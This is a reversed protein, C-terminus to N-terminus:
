LLSCIFDEERVIQLKSDSSSNIRMEFAQALKGGTILSTWGKERDEGLILYDLNRTVSKSKPLLGGRAIIQKEAESRSGWAMKGTFLFTRGPFDISPTEEILSHAILLSPIKETSILALVQRKKEAEEEFQRRALRLKEQESDFDLGEVFCKCRLLPTQKAFSEISEITCLGLSQLKPFVTGVLLDVVSEVDGLATHPRCCKLGYHERLYDLKHSPLENFVRRSLGWTCMGKSGIQDIGLRDVEPKLARDWDFTLYHSAIRSGAVFAAFESYAKIPPLGNATIFQTTYGHVATAEEPITVGHDIFVRFPVGVPSTGNFRQAAIEVIHIPSYFGDTETDILTWTNMESIIQINRCDFEFDIKVTMLATNQAINRLEASECV